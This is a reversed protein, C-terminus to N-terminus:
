RMIVNGEYTLNIMRRTDGSRRAKIIANKLVSLKSELEDSPMVIRFPKKVEDKYLLIFEIEEPNKLSIASIKFDSFETLTLMILDIAPKLQPLYTGAKLNPGGGYEIIVPLRMNINMCSNRDMVIGSSAVVWPSKRHDLFARPIREIIDFKLTDPLVRSVTVKEISSFTELKTKLEKLKVDFLNTRNIKLGLIDAVDQSHANWWGPSEVAVYRLIFHKNKSFLARSTFWFSLVISVLLIVIASLIIGAKFYKNKSIKSISAM